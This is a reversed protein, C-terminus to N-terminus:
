WKKNPQKRKSQVVANIEQWLTRLAQESTLGVGTPDADSKSEDAM